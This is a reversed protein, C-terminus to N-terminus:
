YISMDFRHDWEPAFWKEGQKCLFFSDIKVAYAASQGKICKALFSALEEKTMLRLAWEDEGALTEVYFIKESMKEGKALPIGANLLFIPLKM